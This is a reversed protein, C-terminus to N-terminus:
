AEPWTQNMLRDFRSSYLIFDPMHEVWGPPLIPRKRLELTFTFRWYGPPVLVPGQYIGAFRVVQSQHGLPTKVRMEFYKTGSVLIEEWWAEFLQAQSDTTALISGQVFTPTATFKRRVRVRGSEMESRLQPDVTQLSHGDLLMAPLGTPYQIM